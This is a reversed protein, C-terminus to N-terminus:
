AWRARMHSSTEHRQESNWVTGFGNGHPISYLMFRTESGFCSCPLRRSQPARERTLPLSLSARTTTVTTTAMTSLSTWRRPESASVIAISLMRSHTALWWMRAAPLSATRVFLRDLDLLVAVSSLPHHHLLVFSRRTVMSGENSTAHHQQDNSHQDSKWRKHFHAM